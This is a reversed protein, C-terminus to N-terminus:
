RKKRRKGKYRLGMGYEKPTIVPILVPTEIVPVPCHLHFLHVNEIPQYYREITFWEVFRKDLGLRERVEKLENLGYVILNNIEGTVEKIVVKWDSM